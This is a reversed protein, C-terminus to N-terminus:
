ESLQSVYQPHSQTRVSEVNELAMDAALKVVEYQMYEPIEDMGSTIDLNNVKRPYALYTLDITYPGIMLDRDIFVVLKNNELVAVPDEIWPKNTYTELFRYAQEHSILRVNASKNSGFHLIGSVFFMRKEQTDAGYTVSSVFDQMTLKNSLTESLLTIGKDIKVLKELDSVRKSSDEFPSKLTNNGTFKTSIKSLYATNLWYDIEEPLFSPCGSIGINVANKDAEVKFAEHLERINM